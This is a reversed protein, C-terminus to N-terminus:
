KLLRRLQAIQKDVDRVAKYSDNQTYLLEPTVGKTAAVFEAAGLMGERMARNMQTKIEIVVIQRQLQAKAEAAEYAALEEPTAARDGQVCEGFYLVGDSNIWM